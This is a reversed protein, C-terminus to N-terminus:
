EYEKVGHKELDELMAKLSWKLDEVTEATMVEPDETWGTKDGIVYYEHVAYYDEEPTKGKHKMVQYHWSM